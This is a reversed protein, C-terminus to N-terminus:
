NAYIAAAFFSDCTKYNEIRSFGNEDNISKPSPGRECTTGFNM